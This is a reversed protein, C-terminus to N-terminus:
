NTLILMAIVTIAIATFVIMGCPALARLPLDGGVWLKGVRWAWQLWHGHEFAHCADCLAVLDGMREDGGVRDYTKHHVQLRCTSGCRQCEYHAEKLKRNRIARWTATRLYAAYSSKNM